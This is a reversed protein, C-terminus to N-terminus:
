FTSKSKSMHNVTSNIEFAMTIYTMAMDNKQKMKIKVKNIDTVQNKESPHFIDTKRKQLNADKELVANSVEESCTIM